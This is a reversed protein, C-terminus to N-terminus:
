SGGPMAPTGQPGPTHSSETASAAQAEAAAKAKPGEGPPWDSTHERVFDSLASRGPNKSVSGTGDPKYM